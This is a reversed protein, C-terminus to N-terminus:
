SSFTDWTGDQPMQRKKGKKCKARAEKGLLDWSKGLEKDFGNGKGVCVSERAGSTDGPVALGQRRVERLAKKQDIHGEKEEVCEQVPFHSVSVSSTAKKEGKLRKRWKKVGLQWDSIERNVMLRWGCGWKGLKIRTRHDPVAKTVKEKEAAPLAGVFESPGHALLKRSM